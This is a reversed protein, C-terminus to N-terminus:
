RAAQELAWRLAIVSPAGVLRGDESRYLRCALAPAAGPEAFPDFGDVLLTPSGCMGYRAAAAEDAVEVRHVTVGPRGTLVEALWQELVPANPCGPVALVALEM